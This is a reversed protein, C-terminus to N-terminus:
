LINCLTTKLDKRMALTILQLAKNILLSWLDFGKESIKITLSYKHRYVDHM